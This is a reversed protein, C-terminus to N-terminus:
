QYYAYTFVYRAEGNFSVGQLDEKCAYINDTCLYTYIPLYQALLDFIQGYLKERESDDASSAAQDILARLGPIIDESAQYDYLSSIILTCLTAPDTGVMSYANSIMDYDRSLYHELWVAMEQVEISMKVGIKALDQQWIVAIDEYTGSMCYMTFAFGDPYASQSLLDKAAEINYPNDYVEKYYKAGAHVVGKSPRAYGYFVDDAITETDLCVFLAKLVNPDRFAEVNHLGIEFLYTTNSTPSSVIKLGASNKVTDAYSPDTNYILDVDGAQLSTLATAQDAMFKITMGDLKVNSADWYAENKSFVISDNATYSVFKFPGTGNLNSSYTSPDQKSSVIALASFSDLLAPSAESLSLVLTHADPCDIEKINAFYNARWCGNKEDKTYEITYKVDDATFDSGDHFKVGERLKFTYTTGDDKVDWSTALAPVYEMKDDLRLLTEMCNSNILCLYATQQNVFPNLDDIEDMDAIILTNQRETAKASSSEASTSGAQTGSKEGQSCAALSLATVAIALAFTMINKVCKM